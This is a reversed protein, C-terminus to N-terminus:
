WGAGTPRPAVVHEFLRRRPTARGPRDTADGGHGGRDEGTGLGERGGAARVADEHQVAEGAVGLRHSGQGLSQGRGAEGDVQGSRGPWPVGISSM